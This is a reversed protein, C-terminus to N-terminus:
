FERFKQHEQTLRLHNRRFPLRRKLPSFCDTVLVPIIPYWKHLSYFSPKINRGLVCYHLINLSINFVYLVLLSEMKVELDSNVWSIRVWLMNIDGAAGLISIILWFNTNSAHKWTIHVEQPDDKFEIDWRPVQWNYAGCGAQYIPFEFRLFHGTHYALRSRQRSILTCCALRSILGM